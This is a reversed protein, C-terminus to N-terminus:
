TYALTATVTAPATGAHVTRLWYANYGPPFQHTLPKGVPVQFTKYHVWLGMGTLDIEVRIEQTGASRHSLQLQKRDYGTFLYPLSAEGPQVQADRWTAGTGVPKGFQWLDDSAGLWLHHPTGELPIFEGAPLKQKPVGALVTLGRWSCFDEVPLHHTCIPRVLAIGGANNSPLEYFTGSALMLDRETSVERAIRSGTPQPTGHPLRWKRNAEDTYVISASDSGLGDAPPTLNAQMWQHLNADTNKSALLTQDVEHLHPGTRVLLTRRNGDRAWLLSQAPQKPATGPRAPLRRDIPAYQFFATASKAAQKPTVRLWSGKETAPFAHHAYGNVTITKLPTFQNTGARDIEITFDVPHESNHHLHLTRQAFGSFLFPESPTNAAVDDKVWVAGRGITPGLQDLQAPKLFWLNSQSQGPGAIKGKCNRTNFFENKATDDCGMVLQNQWRTFDGIVRIYSSRPTIGASNARSFTKPFHWFMGHMTMLLTSEGIDRIRPWETNWGHAGDYTHTAKPLRYSHWTGGDLLMLILSRHDWGIAWIPDTAPNANGEIGGPGTVDTFQNRRIVRWNKGDWEALCGSPTDPPLNGGGVEGNNSYVVRGQGSYFGKGHYGPLLPGSVDKAEKRLVVANADEYLQRVALTEADVEYFGEEMSAYYIKHAPDTLHRANGTPRGYMKTFPIARVKGTSDIAYPGIFLQKSERHIMRNAPTGGISEPRITQNLNSDIEYLRDDSGQPQHPSYTVVWLKGAWPVVAGTGCEAQSNFMALHPYVGSIQRHPQPAFLFFFTRRLM